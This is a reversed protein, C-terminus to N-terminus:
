KKFASVTLESGRGIRDAIRQLPILGRCGLHVVRRLVAVWRPQNLEPLPYLPTLKLVADLGHTLTYLNSFTVMSEIGFGYEELLRTLTQSDFVWLHRPIDAAASKGRFVATEWGAGNPVRVVLQGGPKLVRHVESITKRPSPVHELVHEMTVADFQHEQFGADELMTARIREAFTTAAVQAAYPNPEV